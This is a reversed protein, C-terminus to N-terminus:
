FVGRSTWWSGIAFRIYYFWNWKCLLLGLREGSCLQVSTNHLIENWICVASSIIQLILMYLSERSLLKHEEIRVNKSSSHSMEIVLLKHEEICQEKRSGLLTLHWALYWCTLIESTTLQVQCTKSDWLVPLTLETWKAM